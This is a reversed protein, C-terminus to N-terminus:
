EMIKDLVKIYSDVSAELSFYQLAKERIKNRDLEKSSRIFDLITQLQSELSQEFNYIYCESFNKLIEDSDGISKSAIVPLGCLMYEGLKTAAVAQMSYSPYILAFGVDAANIYFPVDDALVQKYIVNSLEFQSIKDKVLDLNGTLILLKTKNGKKLEKFILFLENIAYKGGLSGVYILLLEDDEINLLKRTAKRSQINYSFKNSDRGNLVVSFKERMMEGVKRVHIDIAKQSRTIVADARFLLSTEISKMWRYKVSGKKLGSFDVREEIPLGDADFVLKVGKLNKTVFAPNTSRPMVIDIKNTKIYKKVIKRGSLLTYINGVSSIPKNSIFIPTYIIGMKIAAKSTIKTREKNGWTFQLIHFEIDRHMAVEQFIPMFLGEMYFTQPGDWTIFLLKKM